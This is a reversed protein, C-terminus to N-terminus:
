IGDYLRGYLFISTFYIKNAKPNNIMIDIREHNRASLFTAVM